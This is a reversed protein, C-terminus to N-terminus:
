NEAHKIQSAQPLNRGFMHNVLVLSEDDYVPIMKAFYEIVGDQKTLAEKDKGIRKFHERQASEKRVQLMLIKQYWNTNDDNYEKGNINLKIDTQM